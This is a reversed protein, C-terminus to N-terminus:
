SRSTKRADILADIVELLGTGERQVTVYRPLDPGCEALFDRINAVGISSSQFARFLSRDNASDGVVAVIPAKSAVGRRGLYEVAYKAGDAKSWGMPRVHIHISSAVVEFQPKAMASIQAMLNPPCKVPRIFTREYLRFPNDGTSSLNFRESIRDSVDDLAERRFNKLTGDPLPIASGNSDYVALGNEGVVAALAPLYTSLAQAWGASRGTVLLVAIGHGSLEMIKALVQPQLKGGITITDDIDLVLANVTKLTQRPMYSFPVLHDDKTVEELISRSAELTRTRCGSVDLAGDTTSKIEGDDTVLGHFLTSPIINYTGNSDLADIEAKASSDLAKYDEAVCLILTKGSDRIASLAEIELQGPRQPFVVDGSETIAEAGFLLFDMREQGRSVSDLFDIWESSNMARLHSCKLQELKRIAEPFEEEVEAHTRFGVVIELKPNPLLEELGSFIARSYEALAIVPNPKTILKALQRGVNRRALEVYESYSSIYNAMQSAEAPWISLPYPPGIKFFHRLGIMVGRYHLATSKAFDNLTSFSGIRGHRIASCTEIAIQALAAGTSFKSERNIPVEQSSPEDRKRDEKTNKSDRQRSSVASPIRTIKQKAELRYGQRRVTMIELDARRLIDRLSVIVNDVPHREGEIPPKNWYHFDERRVVEGESELLQHIVSFESESVRVSRGNNKVQETRGDFSWKGCRFSDMPM